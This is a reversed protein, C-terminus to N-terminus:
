DARIDSTPVGAFANWCAVIRAAIEPSAAEAYHNYDNGSPDWFESGEVPYRYEGHDMFSPERIVVTTSPWLEANGAEIDLSSLTTM